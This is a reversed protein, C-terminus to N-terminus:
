KEGQELKQTPEAMQQFNIEFEKESNSILIPRDFNSINNQPVHNSINQVFDKCIYLTYDSSANYEYGCVFNLPSKAKIPHSDYNYAFGGNKRTSFVVYYTKLGTDKQITVINIEGIQWDCVGHEFYDNYLNLEYRNDFMTGNIDIEKEQSFRTGAILFVNDCKTNTAIYRISAKIYYKNNDIPFKGYIKIKETPNPNIVPIRGLEYKQNETYIYLIFIIPLSIYLFYIIYKFTKNKLM